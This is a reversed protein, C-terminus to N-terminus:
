REAFYNIKKESDGDDNADQVLDELKFTTRQVWVTRVHLNALVDYLFISVDWRISWEQSSLSSSFAMQLHCRSVFAGSLHGDIMWTIFAHWKYTSWDFIFYNWLMELQHNFRFSVVMKKHFFKSCSHFIFVLRISRFWCVSNRDDLMSIFRLAIRRFHHIEHHCDFFFFFFHNFCWWKAMHNPHTLLSHIKFVVFFAKKRKNKIWKSKCKMSNHLWRCRMSILIETSDVFIFM